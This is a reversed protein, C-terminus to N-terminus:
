LEVLGWLNAVAEVGVTSLFGVHERQTHDEEGHVHSCEGELPDLINNVAPLVLVEEFAVQYLEPGSFGASARFELLKDHFHKHLIWGV